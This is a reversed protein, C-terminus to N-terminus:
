CKEGRFGHITPQFILKRKPLGLKLSNRSSPRVTSKKSLKVFGMPDMPSTYKGVLNKLTVENPGVLSRKM